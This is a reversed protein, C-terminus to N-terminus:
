IGFVDKHRVEFSIDLFPASHTIKGISIYDIGTRAIEKVNDLGVGGSVELKARGGVIEVAKRIDEITFNDLMIWEAGAELAEKLEEINEVEVEGYIIKLANKVGGAIRKHNDKILVADYLGFRHNEGGGCRVAYKEVYRLLPITKRTDLIKVGSGEVADVFRRTLTAIGSLHQLFNLSVREGSLLSRARGRVKAIVEGEGVKDGDKKLVRYDVDPDLLEFVWGPIDIGAIVGDEKVLFEGEVVLNEPVIALTTIDGSGLDEELAEKLLPLVREKELRNM